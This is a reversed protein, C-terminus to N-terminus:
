FFDNDAKKLNNIKTKSLTKLLISRFFRLVPYLLASVKKSKFIAYNLRNFLGSRSSILSLAHIADAGYYIQDGMKLVMGQDIDLGMTTIEQMISSDERANILKLEGISERIRVIKCYNDCAPCEKDYILLIKEKGM